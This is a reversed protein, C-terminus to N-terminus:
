GYRNCFKHENLLIQLCLAVFFLYVRLIQIKPFELRQMSPAHMDNHVKVSLEQVRQNLRPIICLTHPNRISLKISGEGETDFVTTM